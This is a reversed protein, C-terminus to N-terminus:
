PIMNMGLEHQMALTALKCEKYSKLQQELTSRKESLGYSSKQTEMQARMERIPGNVFSEGKINRNFMLLQKM